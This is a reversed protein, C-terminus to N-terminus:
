QEKKLGKGYHYLVNEVYRGSCKLKWKPGTMSQFAQEFEELHIQM